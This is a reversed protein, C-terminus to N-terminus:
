DRDACNVYRRWLLWASLTATTRPAKAPTAVHAAVNTRKIPANRSEVSALRNNTRKPDAIKLVSPARMAKTRSISIALRPNRASTACRPRDASSSLESIGVVSSTDVCASWTM